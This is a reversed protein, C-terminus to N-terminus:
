GNGVEPKAQQDAEDGSEHANIGPLDCPQDNHAFRRVGDKGMYWQRARGSLIDYEFGFGGTIAM